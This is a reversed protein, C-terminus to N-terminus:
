LIQWSKKKLKNNYYEGKCSSSCFPTTLESIKSNTNCGCRACKVVINEDSVDPLDSPIPVTREDILITEKNIGISVGLYKMRRLFGTCPKSTDCHCSWVKGTKHYVEKVYPFDPMCGYNSLKEGEEHDILMPCGNCKKAM